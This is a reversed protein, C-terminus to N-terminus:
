RPVKPQVQRIANLNEEVANNGYRRYLCETCSFLMVAITTIFFPVCFVNLKGELLKVKSPELPPATGRESQVFCSTSM